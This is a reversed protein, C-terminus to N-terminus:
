PMIRKSMDVVARRLPSAAAAGFTVVISPLGNSVLETTLDAASFTITETGADFSTWAKGGVTVKSMRGAHELPARARVQLGGAPKSTTAFTSPATVNVAVTYVSDAAADNASTSPASPPQVTFSLRGYRTTANSVIIPDEGPALWARPTAKALWLTKTELEEFILMWKLCLPVNNPGAASYFVSHTHDIASTSEPTIYTGRANAHASQTFFHLLFREVMDHQLLGHPLGHVVHSFLNPGAAPTGTQLWRGIPCTTLGLGSKYMDDVQKESLAGSFFLEPYSRYTNGMEGADLDNCETRHCYCRDGPSATTNVSTNLSAHLDHYLEPAFSLLTAGHKAFDDRKLDKGLEQWIPGMEIFARYASATSSYFHLEVDQHFYLRNYNDAESDGPLMGYRADDRPWDLSLSRRGILWDAIAKAKAFQKVLLTEDKSYSYYLALMTIMRASQAIEEGRYYIMGDMRVYDDFQHDILGRAWPLAGMELAAHVTTTFTDEFGDQMNIGYGITTGYRQGWTDKRTLMARIVSAVAQTKLWTGNTSAPSPLSMSMMGESALEADWYQRNELLAAYFGAAQAPVAPGTM